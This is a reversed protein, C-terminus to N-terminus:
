ASALDTGQAPKEPKKVGEPAVPGTPPQPTSSPPTPADSRSSDASTNEPAPKLQKDDFVNPRAGIRGDNLIVPIAGLGLRYNKLPGTNQHSCKECVKGNILEENFLKVRSNLDDRPDPATVVNPNPNSM